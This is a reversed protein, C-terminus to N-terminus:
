QNKRNMKDVVLLPIDYDGVIIISKDRIKTSDINAKKSAIRSSACVNPFM